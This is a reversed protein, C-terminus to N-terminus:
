RRRRPLRRMFVASFLLLVLLMYTAYFFAVLIQLLSVNVFLPTAAAFFLM